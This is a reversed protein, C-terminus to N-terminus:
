GLPGLVNLSRAVGSGASPTGQRAERAHLHVLLSASGVRQRVIVPLSRAWYILAVSRPQFGKAEASDVVFAVRCSREPLRVGLRFPVASCVASSEFSGAFAAMAFAYSGRCPYPRGSRRARHQASLPWRARGTLVCAHARCGRQPLPPPPVVGQRGPPGSSPATPRSLMRTTHPVAGPTQTKISSQRIDAGVEWFEGM